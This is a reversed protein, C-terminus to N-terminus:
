SKQTLIESILYVSGIIFVVDNKSSDNIAQELANKSKNFSKFNLKNQRAKELIKEVSMARESDVNCFYYIYNKPFLNIIKLQDIKDLTGFVIRIQNKYEKIQSLIEKIGDVNHAVDIIVDPNHSILDWRGFFRTNKKVNKVGKKVLQYDIRIDKILSVTKIAVSINKIQYIGKLDSDHNVENLSGASYM